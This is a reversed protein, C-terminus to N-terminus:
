LEKEKEKRKTREGEIGEPPGKHVAQDCDTIYTVANRIQMTLSTRSMVTETEFALNMSM